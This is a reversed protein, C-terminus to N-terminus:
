APDEDHREAEEGDVDGGHAQHVERVHVELEREHSQDEDEGPGEGVFMIEANAPGDSFATQRRTEALLKCRVCKKVTERVAALKKEVEATEAGVARAPQLSEDTNNKLGGASGPFASVDDSRRRCTAVVNNTATLFLRGELM